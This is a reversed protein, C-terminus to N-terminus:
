MKTHAISKEICTKFETMDINKRKMLFGIEMNGVYLKAMKANLTIQVASEHPRLELVHGSTIFKRLTRAASKALQRECLNDSYINGPAEYGILSYKAGTYEITNGDIVSVNYRNITEASTSTTSLILAVAIKIINKM